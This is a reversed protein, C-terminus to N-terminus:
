SKYYVSKFDNMTVKRNFVMANNREIESEVITKFNYSFKGLLKHMMHTEQKGQLGVSTVTWEHALIAVLAEGPFIVQLLMFSNVGSLFWVSTFYTSSGECPFFTESIVHTAM